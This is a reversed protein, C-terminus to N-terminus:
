LTASPPARAPPACRRCDSPASGDGPAMGVHWSGPPRSGGFGLVAAGFGEHAGSRGQVLQALRTATSQADHGHAHWAPTAQNAGFTRANPRPRTSATSATALRTPATIGPQTTATARPGHAIGPLLWTLLLLLAPLRTRM